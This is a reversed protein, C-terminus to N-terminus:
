NIAERILGKLTTWLRPSSNHHPAPLNRYNARQNSKKVDRRAISTNPSSTCPERSFRSFRASRENARRKTTSSRTTGRSWTSWNISTAAQCLLIALKRRQSCKSGWWSCIPGTSASLAQISLKKPTKKSRSEWNSRLSLCNRTKKFPNSAKMRIAWMSDRKGGRMKKSMKEQRSNRIQFNHLTAHKDHKKSPRTHTHWRTSLRNSKITSTAWVASELGMSKRWSTEASRRTTRRKVRRPRTTIVRPGLSQNDLLSRAISVILEFVRRKCNGGTPAKDERNARALTAILYSFTSCIRAQVSASCQLSDQLQTM